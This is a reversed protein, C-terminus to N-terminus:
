IVGAIILDAQLDSIMQAIETNTPEKPQPEIIVPVPETFVNKEHDYLWGEKPQIDFDIIEIIEINPAFEPMEDSEFIWHVKNNVIQAFKKM